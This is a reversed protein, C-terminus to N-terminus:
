VKNKRPENLVFINAGYESLLKTLFKTVGNKVIFNRENEYLPILTLYNINGIDSVELSFGSYTFLFYDYGFVKHFEESVNVTHGPGFWTNESFPFKTLRTLEGAIILSEESKIDLKESAFGMLEINQFSDTPSNMEKAGMGISAFVKLDVQNDVILVDSHVYKSELEHSIYDTKNSGWNTAIYTQIESLQEPTYTALIERM